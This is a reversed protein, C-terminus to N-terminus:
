GHLCGCRKQFSPQENENFPLKRVAGTQGHPKKHPHPPSSSCDDQFSVGTGVSASHWIIREWEIGIENSAGNQAFELPGEVNQAQRHVVSAHAGNDRKAKKGIGAKLSQGALAMRTWRKLTEISSGASRAIRQAVFKPAFGGNEVRAIAFKLVANWKLEVGDLCRTSARMLKKTMQIDGFRGQVAQRQENAQQKAAPAGDPKTKRGRTKFGLFGGKRGGGVPAVRLTINRKGAKSKPSPAGM